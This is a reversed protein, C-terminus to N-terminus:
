VICRCYATLYLNIPFNEPRDRALYYKVICCCQNEAEFSSWVSTYRHTEFKPEFSPAISSCCGRMYARCLFGLGLVCAHFYWYVCGASGVGDGSVNAVAVHGSALLSSSPERQGSCAVKAQPSEDSSTPRCRAHPFNPTRWRALEGQRSIVCAARGLSSRITIQRPQAIPNCRL